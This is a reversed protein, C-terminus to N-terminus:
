NALEAGDRSSVYSLYLDAIRDQEIVTLVVTPGFRERLEAERRALAARFEPTLEDL